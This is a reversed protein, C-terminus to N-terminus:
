LSSTPCRRWRSDDARCRDTQEWPRCSVSSCWRCTRAWCPEWACPDPLLDNCCCWFPHDKKRYDNQVNTQKNTSSKAYVVGPIKQPVMRLRPLCCCCCCCCRCCFHHRFYHWKYKTCDLSNCCKQWTKKISYIRYTFHSVVVCTYNFLILSSNM